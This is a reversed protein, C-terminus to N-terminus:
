ILKILEYKGAYSNKPTKDSDKYEVLPADTYVVSDTGINFWDNIPIYEKMREESVEIDSDLNEVTYAFNVSMRLGSGSKVTQHLLFSDSFYVHGLKMFIDHEKAKKKLVEGESFDNVARVFDPCFDDGPEFVKVGNKTMDGFVPFLMMVSNSPEGAWIDSHLKMSSRPRNDKAPNLEGNTLRVNIPFHIREVKDHNVLEKVINAVTKYVLNYALLNNTKPLLLGNPTVNPLTKIDEEYRELFDECLVFKKDIHSVSHYLYNIVANKLMTNHKNSLKHELMLPFEEGIQCTVSERLRKARSEIVQSM